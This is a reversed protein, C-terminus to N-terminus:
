VPKGRKPPRVEENETLNSKVQLDKQNVRSRDFPSILLSQQRRQQQRRKTPNSRMQPMMGASVQNRFEAGVRRRRRRAKGFQRECRSRSVTAAAGDLGDTSQRQPLGDSGSSCAGSGVICSFHTQFNGGVRATSSPVMSGSLTSQRNDLDSPTSFM